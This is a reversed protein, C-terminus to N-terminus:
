TREKENGTVGQLLSFYFEKELDARKDSVIHVNAVVILVTSEPEAEWPTYWPRRAGGPRVPAASLLGNKGHTKRTERKRKAKRGVGRHLRYAPGVQSDM